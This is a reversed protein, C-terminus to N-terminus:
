KKRLKNLHKTNYLRQWATYKEEAFVVYSEFKQIFQIERTMEDIQKEEESFYKRYVWIEILKRNLVKGVQRFKFCNM